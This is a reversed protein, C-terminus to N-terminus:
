KELGTEELITSARGSAAQEAKGLLEEVIERVRGAVADPAV